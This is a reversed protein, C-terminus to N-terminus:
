PVFYVNQVKSIMLVNKYKLSVSNLITYKVFQILTEIFKIRTEM